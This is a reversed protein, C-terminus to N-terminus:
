TCTFACLYTGKSETQQKHSPCHRIVHGSRLNGSSWRCFSRLPLPLPKISWMVHYSIELRGDVFHTSPSLYPNSQDCSMIPSKWVVMSLILPPPSTLTQNTVHCSLLNGSSWWCFSPLPLPLPKIPWMVHYSIELRGDVFHASPSLYPNSQDCSRMPSNWVVMSLILPPPSTLTQNIVHGWRLNGSSWRCFSRLPLPLPKIPWMVEDSLELRGDVFHASPSLYPNSQDCSRMPSKWVVMSLILPPPSTLTQNIVHGWRLTGSSWRCFSHLPSTLTQNTVHGWRLNGSSWRCFSHLPSTLTQNTVHGWRLNGSSWRCFSRLPLPLPKISWMVEDSLELRGDVFHTSPLPLPKISWM